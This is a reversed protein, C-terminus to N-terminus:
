FRKEIGVTPVPEAWDADDKQQARVGGRVSTGEDVDVAVGAEAERLTHQRKPDFGVSDERAKGDVRIGASRKKETTELNGAAMSRERGDLDRHADTITDPLRMLDDLPPEPPQEPGEPESDMPEEDLRMGGVVPESSDAPVPKVADVPADEIWQAPPSSDLPAPAPAGEKVGADCGSAIALGLVCLVTGSRGVSWPVLDRFDM